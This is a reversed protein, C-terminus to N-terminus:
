SRRGGTNASDMFVLRISYKRQNALLHSATRTVRLVEQFSLVACHRYDECIRFNVRMDVFYKPSLYRLELHISLLEECLLSWLRKQHYHCTGIHNIHCLLRNISLGQRRKHVRHKKNLIPWWPSLRQNNLYFTIKWFYWMFPVIHCLKFVHNEWDNLIWKSEM